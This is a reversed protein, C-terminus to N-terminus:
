RSASSKPLECADNDGDSDDMKSRKATSETTSDIARKKTAKSGGSPTNLTRTQATSSLNTTVRNKGIADIPPKPLLVDCRHWQFRFM